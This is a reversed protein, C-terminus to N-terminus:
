CRRPKRAHRLWNLAPARRIVVLRKLRRRRHYSRGSLNAAGRRRWRQYGAGSLWFSLRRKRSLNVNSPSVCYKRHCGRIQPQPAEALTRCVSAPMALRTEM